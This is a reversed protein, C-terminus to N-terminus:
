PNTLMFIVKCFFIHVCLPAPKNGRVTKQCDHWRLSLVWYITINYILILWSNYIKCSRFDKAFSGLNAFNNRFSFDVGTYHLLFLGITKRVHRHRCIQQTKSAKSRSSKYIPAKEKRMIIYIISKIVRARKLSPASNSHRHKVESVTDSKWTEKHAMTNNQKSAGCDITWHLAYFSQCPLRM